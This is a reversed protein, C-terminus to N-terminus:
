FKWKDRELFDQSENFWVCYFPHVRIRPSNDKHMDERQGKRLKSLLAQLQASVTYM